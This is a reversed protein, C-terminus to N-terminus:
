RLLFDSEAPIPDIRRRDIHDVEIFSRGAILREIFHELADQTGQAEIRVTGDELNEANGTVQFLQASQRAFWRFGVGQVTGFAILEYRIM